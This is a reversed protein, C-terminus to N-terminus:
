PVVQSKRLKMRKQLKWRKKIGEVKQPVQAREVVREITMRLTTTVVDSMRFDTTTDEVKKRAFMQMTVDVTMAIVVTEMVVTTM